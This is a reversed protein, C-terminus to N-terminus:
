ARKRRRVDRGAKWRYARKKERERKAEAKQEAEAQDKRANWRVPKPSHQSPGVGADWLMCWEPWTINSFEGWLINRGRTPSIGLMEWTKPETLGHHRMAATELMLRVMIQTPPLDEPRVDDIAALQGRIVDRAIPKDLRRDGSWVKKRLTAFGRRTVGERNAIRLLQLALQLDHEVRAQLEPSRHRRM